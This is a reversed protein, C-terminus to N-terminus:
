SRNCNRTQQGYRYSTRLYLQEKRNIDRTRWLLLFSISLEPEIMM